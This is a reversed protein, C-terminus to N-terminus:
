MLGSSSGPRSQLACYDSSKQVEPNKEYRDSARRKAGQKAHFSCIRVLVDSFIQSFSGYAGSEADFNAYKMKMDTRTQGVSRKSFTFISDFLCSFLIFGKDVNAQLSREKERQASGHCSSNFHSGRVLGFIRYIQLSGDPAYKYTGDCIINECNGWLALAERRLTRRRNRANMGRLTFHMAQNEKALLEKYTRINPFKKRKARALGEQTARVNGCAASRITAFDKNRGYESLVRNDIRVRASAPKEKIGTAMEAQISRRVNVGKVQSLVKPVCKGSSQLGGRERHIRKDDSQVEVDQDATEQRREQRRRCSMWRLQSLSTRLRKKVDQEHWKPQQPNIINSNSARELQRIIEKQENILCVKVNTTGLDIGLYYCSM